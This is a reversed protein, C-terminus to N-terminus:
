FDKLNLDLLLGLSLNLADCTLLFEPLVLIFLFAFSEFLILM